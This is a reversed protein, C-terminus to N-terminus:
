FAPPTARHEHGLLALVDGGISDLQKTVRSDLGMSVGRCTEGSSGIQRFEWFKTRRSLVDVPRPQATHEARNVRHWVPWPDKGVAKSPNTQTELGDFVQSPGYKKLHYERGGRGGRSGPKVPGFGRPVDADRLLVGANEGSSIRTMVVPHSGRRAKAHTSTARERMQLVLGLAGRRAITRGSTTTCVGAFGTDLLYTFANIELRRKFCFIAPPDM